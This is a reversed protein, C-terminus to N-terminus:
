LIAWFYRGLDVSGRLRSDRLSYGFEARVLRHLWEFAVGVVPRVGETRKWPLTSLERDTWVGGVYPAVVASRGTSGFSGLPLAPFPVDVQWELQFIAAREGGWARFAEGVLTGRGGVAFSRHPPLGASGIGVWGRGAITTPGASWFSRWDLTGRWYSADGVGIETTVRVSRESRGLPMWSGTLLLVGFNGAGLSPNPRFSGNAPTAFAELSRVKWWSVEGEFGLGVWQAAGNMGFRDVLYYDGFDNGLEQAVLSNILPAGVPEDMIDRVVREARLGGRVGLGVDFDVQWKLRDDSFGYGAWYRFEVAGGPRLVGGFGPALGEVRNFHAIRSLSHVGPQARPLGSLVGGAVVDRVERRVDDASILGGLRLVEKLGEDLSADWVFSDRAAASVAVIEPGLTRSPPIGVNFQYSDIDWTARIIGRAPVDFWSSRRRVEIEQRRPLWFSGDWLGNELVIAIDEVSDDLYSARTFSFRFRVVGGDVADLFLNGIVGPETLDRPRVLLQYVRVSRGPLEIFLSDVVAFDYSDRGVETLPHVVDRVEHGDGLRIRDGFDNQVIGLHDRHYSIDTPLDTRDRWGVIFQKSSNPSRWYVELVLQDAKVLRPPTNLGEGMQALFLVFGHARAVYDSLGDQRVPQGRRATATAVLGAAQDSNWEQGTLPVTALLATLAIALSNWPHSRSDAQHGERDRRAFGNRCWDVFGQGRTLQQDQAQM